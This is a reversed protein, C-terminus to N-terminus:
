KDDYLIFIALIGSQNSQIQRCAFLLLLLNSIEIGSQNSQILLDDIADSRKNGIEIGSQNSQISSLTIM